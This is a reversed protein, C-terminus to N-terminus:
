GFGVRFRIEQRTESLRSLIRKLTEDDIPLRVSGSQALQILQIELAEVLEPKVLKLNSLRSRAEPTLIRRLIEQRKAEEAARQAEARQAEALKKQYELMKRKKIEELETSEEFESM